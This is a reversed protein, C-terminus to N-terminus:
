LKQKLIQQFLKDIHKSNEVIVLIEVLGPNFDPKIRIPFTFTVQSYTSSKRAVEIKM